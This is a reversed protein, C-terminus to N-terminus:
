FTGQADREVGLADDVDAGGVDGGRLAIDVQAGGGDIQVAAEVAVAAMAFFGMFLGADAQAVQGAQEGGPSPTPKLDM